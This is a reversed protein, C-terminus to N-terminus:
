ARPLSRFLRGHANEDGIVVADVGGPELREFLDGGRERAVRALDPGHGGGELLRADAM